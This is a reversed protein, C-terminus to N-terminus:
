PLRSEAKLLESQYNKSYFLLFTSPWSAMLCLIVYTQIIL